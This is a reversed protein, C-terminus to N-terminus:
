ELTQNPKQIYQYLKSVDNVTIGNGVAVDGSTVYIDDMTIKKRLYQFLKAVDAVTVKGDGSVDGLVILQYNIEENAMQIKINSGTGIKDTGSINEGKNNTIVIDATTEIKNLISDVSLSEGKNVTLQLKKNEKDVTIDESFIINEIRKITVKYTKKLGNESVVIINFTNNGFKLTKSDPLTLTAYENTTTANIIIESVEPQVELYYETKTPDFELDYGPIILSSLTNINSLIRIDQSVNNITHEEFNEDSIIIDELTINADLGTNINSSEITLTGIEFDNIQNNATYLNIEKTELFDQLNEETVNWIDENISINKITINDSVKLKMHLSSVNTTYNEGRINCTTTESPSLNTKDCEIAITNSKKWKAYITHSTNSVLESGSEIYNKYDSDLYWGEFTYGNRTPTSLNNYKQYEVSINQTGDGNNQIVTTGYVRSPRLVVFIDKAFISKYQYWASNVSQDNTNYTLLEYKNDANPGYGVIVPINGNHGKFLYTNMENANNEYTIIIDGYVLDNISLFNTRDDDDNGKVLKGGYIGPVLMKNIKIANEDTLKEIAQKNKKVFVNYGSYNDFIANKINPKSLYGIEFGYSNYYIMKVFGLKSVNASSLTDLDEYYDMGNADYIIKGEKILNNFKDIEQNMIDVNTKTNLTPNVNISLNGMTLNYGDSTTIIMGDNIVDTDSIIKVKYNYKKTEGPKIEVNEWTVTKNKADYICNNNCSVYETGEPIKGTITLNKYTVEKKATKWENNKEICNAKKAYISSSCYGFNSNNIIHLNYIINEGNNSSITPEINTSVNENSEFQEINLYSLEKRAITNELREDYNDKYNNSQINTKSLSCDNNNCYTNIPRFIGFYTSVANSANRFVYTSVYNEWTDYRVSFPDKKIEVPEKNDIPDEGIAHIFGHENNGFIDGVYVLIHGTVINKTLNKTRYLLLDGVQLNNIINNKINTQEQSTELYNNNSDIKVNYSYVVSSTSTSDFNKYEEGTKNTTGSVQNAVNYLFGNNWGKGYKMYAKQYNEVSTTSSQRTNEELFPHNHVQYHESMDYGLSYLYTALTFSSCDISYYNNRSVMEPSNDLSRWYFSNFNYNNGSQQKDMAIQSYDSYENNFLYSLATSAVMDQLEERTYTKNEISYTIKNILLPSLIYMFTIIAIIIKKKNDKLQNKINM